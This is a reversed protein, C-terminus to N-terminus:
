TIATKFWPDTTNDKRIAELGDVVFTDGECRQAVYRVPDDEIDSEDPLCLRHEDADEQEFEEESELVDVSGHDTESFPNSGTIVSLQSQVDNFVEVLKQNQNVKKLFDKSADDNSSAVVILNNVAALPKLPPSVPNTQSQLISSQDTTIQPDGNTTAAQRMVATTTKPGAAAVVSPGPPNFPRQVVSKGMPLKM